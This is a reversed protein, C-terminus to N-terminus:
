FLSTNVSYIWMRNSETESVFINLKLDKVHLYKTNRRKTILLEPNERITTAIFLKSYLKYFKGEEFEINGSWSNGCKVKSGNVIAVDPFHMFERNGSWFNVNIFDHLQFRSELLLFRSNRLYFYHIGSTSITFEQIPFTM